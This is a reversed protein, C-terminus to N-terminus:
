VVVAAVSSWTGITTGQGSHAARGNSATARDHHFLPNASYECIIIGVIIKIVNRKGFAGYLGICLSGPMLRVRSM